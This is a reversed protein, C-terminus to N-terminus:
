APLPNAYLADVPIRVDISALEVQEGKGFFRLEWLGQANLRQVEVRPEDQSVLVYERLSPIQRYHNAKAGRDYAESTPSLVEFLAIPNTTAHPDAKSMELKGCVVTADPYTSTGTREIRVRLDATFVRCPRGALANGLAVILSAAIGAHDPSGGSMAYVYGNVYEYKEESAEAFALYEALTMKRADPQASM